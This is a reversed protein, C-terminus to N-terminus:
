KEVFFLHHAILGKFTLVEPNWTEPFKVVGVSPVDLTKSSEIAKPNYYVTSGGTIDPLTGGVALDAISQALLFNPDSGLPMLDYEPDSPVTISTFQWPRTCELYFSSSRRLVRNRIANCVSRMGADGGGRNERWITLATIARERDQFLWLWAVTKASIVQNM